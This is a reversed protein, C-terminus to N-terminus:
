SVPSIKMNMVFDYLEEAVLDVGAPDLKGSADLFSADKLKKEFEESHDQLFSQIEQRSSAISEKVDDRLQGDETYINEDSKNQTSLKNAAYSILYPYVEGISIRAKAPRTRDYIRTHTTNNLKRRRRRNLLFSGVSLLIVLFILVFILLANREM